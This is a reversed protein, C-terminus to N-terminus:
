RTRRSRRVAACSGRTLRYRSCRMQPQPGLPNGVADGGSSPSRLIGIAPAQSPRPSPTPPHTGWLKFPVTSRQSSPGCSPWVLRGGYLHVESGSLRLSAPQWPPLPPRNGPSPARPLPALLPGRRLRLGLGARGGKKCSAGPRAWSSSCDWLQGSPLSLAQVWAWVLSRGKKIKRPLARSALGRGAQGEQAGLGM